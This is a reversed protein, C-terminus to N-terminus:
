VVLARPVPRPMGMALRITSAWPPRISISSPSSGPAVKRMGSGFPGWHASRELDDDGVVLQVHAIVELLDQRQQAVLDDSDGPVAPLQDVKADARTGVQDDGVDL